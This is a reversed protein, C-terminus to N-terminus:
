SWHWVIDGKNEECCPAARVRGSAAASINELQSPDGIVVVSVALNINQRSIESMMVKPEVTHFEQSHFKGVFPTTSMSRSAAIFILKFDNFAKKKKKEGLNM